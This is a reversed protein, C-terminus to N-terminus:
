DVCSLIDLIQEAVAKIARPDICSPRYYIDAGASVGDLRWNMLFERWYYDKMTPAVSSVTVGTFIPNENLDNQDLLVPTLTPINLRKLVPYLHSGHYEASELWMERAERVLDLISTDPQIRLRSLRTNIFAGVMHAKFTEERNAFDTGLMMDNQGTVRAIAMGSLALLVLFPTARTVVAISRLNELNSNSITFSYRDCTYEPAVHTPAPWSITRPADSTVSSWYSLTNQFATAWNDRQARSFELYSLGLPPLNPQSKQLRAGYYASFDRWFIGQSVSDFHLHHVMIALIYHDPGLTAVQPRFLNKGTLVCELGYREDLLANMFETTSRMENRYRLGKPLAELRQMPVGNVREIVTRLSSHRMAIDDFSAALCDLDMPGRLECMRILDYRQACAPHAQMRELIEEQVFSLPALDGNAPPYEKKVDRGVPLLQAM